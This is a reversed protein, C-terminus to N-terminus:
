AFVVLDETQLAFDNMIQSRILVGIKDQLQRACMSEHAHRRKHIYWLAEPLGHKEVSGHRQM